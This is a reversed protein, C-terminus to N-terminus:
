PSLIMVLCIMPSSDTDSRAITLDVISPRMDAVDREHCQDCFSCCDPEAPALLPRWFFLGEPSPSGLM